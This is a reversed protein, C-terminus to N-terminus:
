SSLMLVVLAICKVDYWFLVERGQMSISYFVYCQKNSRTLSLALKIPRVIMCISERIEPGDLLGKSSKQIDLLADLLRRSLLM